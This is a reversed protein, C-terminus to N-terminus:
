LNNNRKLKKQRDAKQKNSQIDEFSDGKGYCDFGQFTVSVHKKLDITPGCFRLQRLVTHFLGAVKSHEEQCQDESVCNAVLRVFEGELFADNVLLLEKDELSELLTSWLTWQDDHELWLIEEDDKQVGVVNNEELSVRAVSQFPNKKHLGFNTERYECLKDLSQLDLFTWSYFLYYDAIIKPLILIRDFARALGVLVALRVKIYNASHYGEKECISIANLAHGDLAIYKQNGGDYYSNSGYWAGLEKAHIQKGHHNSLPSTGLTHIFLTLETPVPTISCVGVHPSIFKFNAPTKPYPVSPQDKWKDSGPAAKGSISLRHFSIMNHFILQDHKQPKLTAEELCNKFFLKTRENARVAYVGINTATPNNQHSAVFIDIKEDHFLYSFGEKLFWVDMEFFVFDFDNDVFWKSVLFKTKQVKAKLEESNERLFACRYGRAVCARATKRDLCVVVVEPAGLTKLAMAVVDDLMERGYASDSMTWAVKKEVIGATAEVLSWELVNNNRVVSSSSSLFSSSVNEKKKHSSSKLFVDMASADSETVMDWWRWLASRREAVRLSRERRAAADRRENSSLFRDRLQMRPSDASLKLPYDAFDFRLPCSLDYASCETLTRWSPLAGKERRVDAAVVNHSETKVGRVRRYLRRQEALAEELAAVGHEQERVSREAEVARRELVKKERENSERQRELRLYLQLARQRDWVASGALLVCGVVVWWNMRRAQM